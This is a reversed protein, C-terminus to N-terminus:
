ADAESHVAVAKIGLRQCTRIVRVAIEGRNAVLVTEYVGAGERRRCGVDPGEGSGSGAGAPAVRRRQLGDLFDLLRAHADANARADGDLTGGGELISGTTTTGSTVTTSVYATM